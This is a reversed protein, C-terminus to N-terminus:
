RYSQAYAKAEAGYGLRLLVRLGNSDVALVAEVGAFARLKDFGPDGPVAPTM